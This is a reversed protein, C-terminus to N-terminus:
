RDSYFSGQVRRVYADFERRRRDIDAERGALEASQKDLEQRAERLEAERQEVSAERLHSRRELETVHIARSEFRRKEEATNREEAEIQREREDLDAERAKLREDSRAELEQARNDLEAERLGLNRELELLRSDTYRLEEARGELIELRREVERERAAIDDRFTQEREAIRIREVELEAAMRQENDGADVAAQALDEELEAIRARAKDLAANRNDLKEVLEETRQEAEAARPSYGELDHLVEALEQRREKPLDDVVDGTTRVVYNELRARLKSM